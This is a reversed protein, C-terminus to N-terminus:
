IDMFSSKAESLDFYLFPPKQNYFFTLIWTERTIIIELYFTGQWLKGNILSLPQHSQLRAWNVFQVMMKCVIDLEFNTNWWSFLLISKLKKTCSAFYPNAKHIMQALIFWIYMIWPQAQAIKRKKLQLLHIVNPIKHERTLFRNDYKQVTPFSKLVILLNKASM